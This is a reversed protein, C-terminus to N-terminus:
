VCVCKSVIENVFNSEGGNYEKMFRLSMHVASSHSCVSVGFFDSARVVNYILWVEIKLFIVQGQPSLLYPKM